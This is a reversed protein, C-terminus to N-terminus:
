SINIGNHKDLLQQLTENHNALNRNTEITSKHEQEIKKCHRIRQVLYVNQVRYQWVSTLIIIYGLFMAATFETFGAVWVLATISIISILISLFLPVVGIALAISIM